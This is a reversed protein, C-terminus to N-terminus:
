DGPTEKESASYHNKDKFNIDILKEQHHSVILKIFNLIKFAYFFLAPLSGFLMDLRCPIM